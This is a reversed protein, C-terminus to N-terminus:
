AIGSTCCTNGSVDSKSRPTIGIGLRSRLCIDDDNRHGPVSVLREQRLKGINQGALDDDVTNVWETEVFLTCKGQGHGVATCRLLGLTKRGRGSNDSRKM